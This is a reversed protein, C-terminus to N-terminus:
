KASSIDKKLVKGRAAIKLPDFQALFVDPNSNKFGM